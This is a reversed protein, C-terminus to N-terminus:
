STLDSRLGLKGTSSLYLGGISQGSSTRVKFLDVTNAGQSAAYFRVRISLESVSTPLNPTAYAPTGSLSLAQAAYKGACPSETTIVLGNVASWTGLTGSEFDEVLLQLGGTTM